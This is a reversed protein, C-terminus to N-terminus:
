PQRTPIFRFEANNPANLNSYKLLIIHTGDINKEESANLVMDTDTSPRMSYIDANNETYTNWLYPTNVTKVRVGNQINDAIGLYKGNAMKLTVQNNGKNEVYFAQNVSKKRLEASGNADVNLYNYMARLNYWGNAMTKAKVTEENKTAPRANTTTPKREKAEAHSKKGEVNITYEGITIYQYRVEIVKKGPTSFQYGGGCQSGAGVLTNSISTFFTIDKNEVPLENGYEDHCVVKIGDVYFRNGVKYETQIPYSVVTAVPRKPGKAPLVEVNYATKFGNSEITMIFKGERTFVEGPKIQVGNLTWKRNKEHMQSGKGPRMVEVQGIGDFPDGVYFTVTTGFAWNGDYKALPCERRQGFAATTTCILLATIIAVKRLDFASIRM